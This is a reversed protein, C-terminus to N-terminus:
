EQWAVLALLPKPGVTLHGLHTGCGRVGNGLIHLAMLGLGLCTNLNNLLAVFVCLELILIKAIM